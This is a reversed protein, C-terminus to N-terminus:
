GATEDRRLEFLRTRNVVRFGVREYVRRPAPHGADGRPHVVVQEAGAEELRRLIDVCLATTLGRGRHKPHTGVPELEAVRISPDLWALCTAAFSGDPAIALLDLDQRYPWSHSVQRFSEVTMRSTASRGDALRSWAARHIGVRRGIEAQTAPRFTYGSPVEVECRDTPACRMDLTFPAGDQARYGARELAGLLATQGEPVTVVLNPSTALEEFWDVIPDALEPHAEDLLAMLHGPLELWAWAALGDRRGWLRTPWDAERDPHALRNWALGGAHWYSNASWLRACLEQVLRLDQAGRYQWSEM